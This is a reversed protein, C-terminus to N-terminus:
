YSKLKCLVQIKVPDSVGVGKDNEAVCEYDGSFIRIDSKDNQIIDDCFQVTQVYIIYCNGVCVRIWSQFLYDWISCVMKCFEELVM